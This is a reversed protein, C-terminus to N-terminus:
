QTQRLDLMVPFPTHSSFVSLLLIKGSDACSKKLLNRVNEMPGPIDANIPKTETGMVVQSTAGSSKPFAEINATKRVMDFRMRKRPRSLM